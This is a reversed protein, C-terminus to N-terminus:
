QNYKPVAFCMFKNYNYIDSKNQRSQCNETVRSLPPSAFFSKKQLNVNKTDSTVAEPESHEQELILVYEQHNLRRTRKWFGNKM